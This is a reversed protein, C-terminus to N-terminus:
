GHSNVSCADDIALCAKPLLYFTRPRSAVISLPHHPQRVAVRGTTPRGASRPINKGKRCTTSSTEFEAEAREKFCCFTQEVASSYRVRVTTGPISSECFASSCIARCLIVLINHRNWLIRQRRASKSMELRKDTEPVGVISTVKVKKPTLM